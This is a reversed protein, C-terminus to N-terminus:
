KFSHKFSGRDTISVPARDSHINGHSDVGMLGFGFKRFVSGDITRANKFM